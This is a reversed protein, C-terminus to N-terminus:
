PKAKPTTPLAGNPKSGSTAPAPGVPAPPADAGPMGQLPAAPPVNVKFNDAVTVHSRSVIEDLTKKAKEEEVAARAKERPSQPPAMPNAAPGGGAAILIHRAHVQEEPKGDAGNQTRRDEVKIIHFGFPTEVIDSIEGPKLSFATEEFEKVMRGRGFYGLDGGTDKSGPDTSFEKALATFDEGARARKLVEEAKARAQKTDFEPHKAVYEDIEKDTAKIKPEIQDKFYKTALVRSQQLMIQLQTKRDKDLGAAVGKNGILQLRAWDKKLEERQDPEIKQPVQPNAAQVKKLFDDFKVDQGPQKLYADVEAPAVLQDISTAKGAKQQQQAYSQAIIQARMLELQNKVDPKDAVGAAKAEEAIALLERINKAFEKRAEDSSALQASLRPQDSALLSMDEASLGAAEVHRIQTQWGILGLAFLIAAGIAIGARKTSTL